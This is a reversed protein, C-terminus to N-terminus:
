YMVCVSLFTCGAAVRDIFSGRACDLKKESDQEVLHQVKGFGIPDIKNRCQLQASCSTKTRLIGPYRWCSRPRSPTDPSTHPPCCSAWTDTQRSSILGFTTVFKRLQTKTDIFHFSIFHFSIFHFSHTNGKIM